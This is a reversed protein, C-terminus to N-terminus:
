AQRDANRKEQTRVIEDTLPDGYHGKANVLLGKVNKKDSSIAYRISSESPNSEGEFRFYQDVKCEDSFLLDGKNRYVLCNQRFNFDETYDAKCLKNITDTLTHANRIKKTFFIIQHPPQGITESPTQGNTM